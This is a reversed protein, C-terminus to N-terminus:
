KRNIYWRELDATNVFRLGGIKRNGIEDRGCAKSIDRAMESYPIGLVDCAEKIPLWENNDFIGMNPLYPQGRGLSEIERVSVILQNYFARSSIKGAAILERIMEQKLRLRNSAGQVTDWEAIPESSATHSLQGNRSPVKDSKTKRRYRDPNSVARLSMNGHARLHEVVERESLYVQPDGPVHYTRVMGSQHQIWYDPASRSYGFKEAAERKTLLDSPLNKSQLIQGGGDGPEKVMPANEGVISDDPVLSLTTRATARFDSDSVDPRGVFHKLFKLADM